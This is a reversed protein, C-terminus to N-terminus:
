ASGLFPFTEKSGEMRRESLIKIDFRLRESTRITALYQVSVPFWAQIPDGVPAGEMEVSVVDLGGM